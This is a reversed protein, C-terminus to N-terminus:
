AMMVQQSLACNDWVDIITVPLDNVLQPQVFSPTCNLTLRSALEAQSLSELREEMFECANAIPSDMNGDSEALGSMVMSKLMANPM